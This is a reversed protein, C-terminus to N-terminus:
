LISQKFRPVPVLTEDLRARLRLELDELYMGAGALLEVSRSAAEACYGCCNCGERCPFPGETFHRLFGDLSRNDVRVPLHPAILKWLNGEFQGHAYAEVVTTLDDTAFTRGALKVSEVGLRAYTGLDEPRIWPAKILEVPSELRTKECGLSRYDRFPEDWGRELKAFWCVLDGHYKQYPCDLLCMSNALLEIGFPAAAVM